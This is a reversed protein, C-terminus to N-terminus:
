LLAAAEEDLCWVVDGHLRLVSAPVEITLPGNIAAAVAPAKAAGTAVILLKRAELITGLGQTIAQVPVDVINPFFRANDSITEPLLDVQRTRSNFTSGPENFGLHGNRGIGLIQLDIGGAEAIARDYEEANAAVDDMGSPVRVLDANLGIEAVADRAIVTHYSEPHSPDIGVYEDLAFCKIDSMDISQARGARGWAQYVPVPSSGTALGIVSDAGRERNDLIIEIIQAAAFDGLEEHTKFVHKQM